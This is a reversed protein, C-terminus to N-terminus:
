EQPAPTGDESQLQYLKMRYRLKDRKLNLMEATRSQNWKTAYSARLILARELEEVLAEFPIGGDGAGNLIGDIRQGITNDTTPRARPVLKLHQPEVVEGTELLVTREFLNRLERINGPWPYHCLLQEAAPSIDRFPKKFQRAFRDMFLRALPLIDDRRDRLPPVWLPVVKLRYYLDERFGGERVLKELDQNTASIIRLNVTVDKTGGVRKFTRRELVRLLKVQLMPSMEGIEDLFLTGGNALEMLGMKQTRADTFAGKEHGFLESELLERPIAACNIEVFPKDHRASMRHILNAFYEKGTGSEGDILVSTNDGRAVQEAIGYAEQMAPSCSHLYDEDAFAHHRLRRLELWLRQSELARAVLALLEDNQFPKKVFWYAGASMAEVATEVEGFATMLIVPVEPQLRKIERLLEIGTGDPLKLDLLLLDPMDQEIAQRTERVSEASRVTYGDDELAKSVFHRISDQDDVVLITAKSM